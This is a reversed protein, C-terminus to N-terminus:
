WAQVHQFCPVLEQYNFLSEVAMSGCAKLRKHSADM